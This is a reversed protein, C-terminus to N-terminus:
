NCTNKTKLYNCLYIYSNNRTLFSLLCFVSCFIICQILILLLIKVNFLVCAVAALGSLISIILNPIVDRMLDGFGYDLLHKSSPVNILVAILEVILAAFVVAFPSRYVFVSAFLVFIGFIRKVTMLRFFVDSRGLANIAQLNTTQLPFVMAIFCFLQVYPVCNLWKAGLLLLIMPRAISAMLIMIPFVLFTSMSIARSLMNKLEKINDQKDAYAPLMVSQISGDINDILTLPFQKGKNCYALTAASFFKGIILSELNHYMTDILRAGLLKVGYSFLVRARKFSFILHPRWNVLILLLVCIVVQYTLQQMILAWSGFNSFAMYIGVFGSILAAIFSSYFQKRFQMRKSLIAIQISNLAGPFLILALVRLFSVLEPINYFSAIYPATIFLLLYLFTAIAMCCYFVSSSDLEDADKKQILATNLGSQVFVTALSVFITLLAVSGYDSPMLLRAIIIGVVFQIGQVGGRELFKWVLSSVIVRNNISM